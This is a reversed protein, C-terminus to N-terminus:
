GGGCIGLSGLRLGAKKRRVDQCGLKNRAALNSCVCCWFLCSQYSSAWFHGTESQKPNCCTALHDVEQSARYARVVFNDVGFPVLWGTRDEDCSALVPATRTGKKERSAKALATMGVHWMLTETGGPFNVERGQRDGANSCPIAADAVRFHIFDFIYPNIGVPHISKARMPM